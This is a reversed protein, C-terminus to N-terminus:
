EQLSGREDVGGFDLVGSSVPDLERVFEADDLGAHIPHCPTAEEPKAGVMVNQTKNAESSGGADPRDLAVTDFNSPASIRRHKNKGPTHMSLM